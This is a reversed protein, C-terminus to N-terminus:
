AVQATEVLALPAGTRAARRPYDPKDPAGFAM